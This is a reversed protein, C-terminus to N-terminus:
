VLLLNPDIRKGKGRDKTQQGKAKGKGKKGKNVKGQSGSRDGRGNWLQQQEPEYPRKVGSATNILVLPTTFYIDKLETNTTVERLAQALPTGDRRVLDFAAKRLQYEYALILAWPPKPTAPLGVAASPVELEWVKRGLVYDVFKGFADPGIDKLWPRNTFKTAMMMWLNGEVRLRKRYQEPTSPISVKLQKRITRITGGPDLGVTLEFETAHELHAIEDLPSAQPDDQEVEETKTTVYPAGPIEDDPTRGYRDELVRRMAMRDNHSIPRRQDLAKAEARVEIQKKASATAVSWADILVAIQLRQPAGETPDIGLLGQFAKRAEPTTDEIAAFRRVTKFGQEVLQYQLNTALGAEAFIFTLEAEANKALYQIM